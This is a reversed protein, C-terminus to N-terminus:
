YNQILVTSQAHIHDRTWVQGESHVEEEQETQAEQVRVNQKYTKSRPENGVKRQGLM